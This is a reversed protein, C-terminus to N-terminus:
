PRIWLTQAIGASSEVGFGAGDARLAAGVML